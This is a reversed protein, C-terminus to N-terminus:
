RYNEYSKFIRFFIYSLALSFITNISALSLGLFRFTVEKCSITNQKLEKLLDEKSLVQSLNKAECIVSENFFGQEIGFHYFALISGFLSVISLILLSNKIYKRIILINFILTISIFYPYRQYLCLKCPEHGLFYEIIYASALSFLLLILISVLINKSTKEM